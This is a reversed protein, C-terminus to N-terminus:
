HLDRAAQLYGVWLRDRARTMAVYQTRRLLEQKEESAKEGAKEFGATTNLQPLFVSGFEMGKSRFWTGVRVTDPKESRLLSCPVGARELLVLYAEALANTGVLVAVDSARVGQELLATVDWILAEDLQSRSDFHTVVPLEGHRVVEVDRSGSDVAVDLDDYPDGAVLASAVALVAVTNRYNTKLVVARGAVSIGADVLRYGGPYIAQQGDGILLLGDARDRVALEHLLQLGVLSIDQVEDVLVGAWRTCAKRRVEDRALRLVDNFDRIGRRGLEASYALYLEWVAERQSPLLRTRRGVRDVALYEELTELGRGKIVHDIEEQFYRSSLGSDALGSVGRWVTRYAEDGSAVRCSVGREALLEQAVAHVNLFDVRGVTRPSLLGYSRALSPPLTSVFSTVLFRGPRTEALWAVRHLGVTTKGTGAAGRIRAPGPYVRRVSQAQEPHLWVMWDEVPRELAERLGAHRTVSEPFLMGEAEAREQEDVQYPPFAYALVETLEHVQENSLLRPRGALFDALHDLDTLLTKGATAPLNRKKNAFVVLAHPRVDAATTTAMVDEVKHTMWTLALLREDRVQGDQLISHDRVSIQGAWLKADVVFVGAQSIVLHDLNARDDGERWRRDDLHQVGELALTSLVSCVAREGKCGAINRSSQARQDTAQKELLTASLAARVAQVSQGGGGSM